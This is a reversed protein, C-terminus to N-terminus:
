NHLEYLFEELPQGKLKREKALKMDKCADDFGSLIEDKTEVSREKNLFRKVSTRLKKLIEVDDINLIERALEGRMANLEVTTM